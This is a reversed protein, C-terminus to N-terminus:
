EIPPHGAFYADWLWPAPAPEYGPPLDGPPLTPLLQEADPGVGNVLLLHRVRHEDPASASARM